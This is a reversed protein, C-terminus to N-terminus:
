THNQIIYQIKSVSVNESADYQHAREHEMYKNAIQKCYLEKAVIIITYTYNKGKNLNPTQYFFLQM